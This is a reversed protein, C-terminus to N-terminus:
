LICRNVLPYLQARNEQHFPKTVWAADPFSLFFTTGFYERCDHDESIWILLLLIQLSITWMFFLFFYYFVFDYSQFFVIVPRWNRHLNLIEPVQLSYAYRHKALQPQRILSSCPLSHIHQYTMHLILYLLIYRKSGASLEDRSNKWSIVVIWKNNGYICLIHSALKKLM